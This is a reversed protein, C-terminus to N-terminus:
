LIFYIGNLPFGFEHEERYVIDHFEGPNGVSPIGDTVDWISVFDQSPPGGRVADVVLESVFSYETSPSFCASDLEQPHNKQHFKAILEQMTPMAPEDHFLRNTGGTRAQNRISPKGM